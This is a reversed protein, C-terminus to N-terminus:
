VEIGEHKCLEALADEMVNRAESTKQGLYAHMVADESNKSQCRSSYEEFAVM